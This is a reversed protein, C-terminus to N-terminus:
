TAGSHVAPIRASLLTFSLAVVGHVLLLVGMLLLDTQGTPM